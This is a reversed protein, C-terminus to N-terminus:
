SDGLRNIEAQIVLRAQGLRHNFSESLMPDKFDLGERVRELAERVAERIDDKYETLLEKQYAAMADTLVAKHAALIASIAHEFYLNPLEDEPMNSIGVMVDRLNKEFETM